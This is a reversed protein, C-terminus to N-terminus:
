EFRRIKLFPTESLPKSLDRTKVQKKNKPDTPM